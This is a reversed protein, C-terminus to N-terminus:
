GKYFCSDETEALKWGRGTRYTPHGEVRGENEGKEWEGGKPLRISDVSIWNNEGRGEGTEGGSWEIPAQAAGRIM